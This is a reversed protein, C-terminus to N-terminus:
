AGGVLVYCACAHPRGHSDIAIARVTQIDYGGNWRLEHVRGSPHAIGLDDRAHITSISGFAKLHELLRARQNALSAENPKFDIETM